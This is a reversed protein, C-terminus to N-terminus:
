GACDILEDFIACGPQLDIQGAKAGFRSSADACISL